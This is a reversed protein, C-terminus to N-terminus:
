RVMVLDKGKKRRDFMVKNEDIQWYFMALTQQEQKRDYAGYDQWKYYGHLDNIM